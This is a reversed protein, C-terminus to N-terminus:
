FCSRFFLYIFFSFLSFHIDPFRTAFFLSFITIRAASKLFYRHVYRPSHHFFISSELHFSCHSDQSVSFRYFNGRSGRYGNRQVFPGTDYDKELARVRENNKSIRSARFNSRFRLCLPLYFYIRGRFKRIPSIEVHLYKRQAKYIFFLYKLGCKKGEEYIM